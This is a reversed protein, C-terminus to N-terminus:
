TKEIGAVITKLTEHHKDFIANTEAVGELEGDIIKQRKEHCPKKLLEYKAEM